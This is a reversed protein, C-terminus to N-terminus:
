EFVIKKNKDTGEVHIEPLSLRVRDVRKAFKRTLLYIIAKRTVNLEHKLQVTLHNKSHLISKFGEIDVSYSVFHRSIETDKDFIAEIKIDTLFDSASVEYALIQVIEVSQTSPFAAVASSVLQLEARTEDAWLERKIWEQSLVAITGLLLISVVSGLIISLKDKMPNLLGKGWQTPEDSM